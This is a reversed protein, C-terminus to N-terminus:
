AAGAGTIPCTATSSSSAPARRAPRANPAHLEHRIEAIRLKMKRTPSMTPFPNIRLQYDTPALEFRFYHVLMLLNIALHLEVWRFGLCKHTGLGFPAYSTSRDTRDHKTRHREIDFSFPDPFIDEMYHTAAQVLYIKSGAPLEYGEVVCNNMVTRIQMPIIPYLRQSEMFFRYTLDIGSKSLAEAEPDGEAFVRDAEEQIQRYLEPDRLLNYLAFSLANGMYLSVILPSIISFPLDTEPLFQPDAAHLSLINDTIDQPCGIRQAPTHAAQIREVLDGIRKKRRKMGPTKLMFKPLVRQVHVVLSREKFKILDKFDKQTDIGVSLQSFQANTFDKCSQVAPLVDGVKWTALHKRAHHYLEDLRGALAARSYTAQIAKRMRFHDAGDMSPLIRSAGYEQEFGSLYDKSRVYNRGVQQIWRNAGRGALFLMGGKMFPVNLRFVPGHKRAIDAFLAPINGTPFAPSFLLDRLPASPIPKTNLVRHFRSQTISKTTAEGISRGIADLKCVLDIRQAADDDLPFILHLVQCSNALAVLIADKPHPIEGGLLVKAIRAKVFDSPIQDPTSYADTHWTGRALSWFGGSHQILIGDNELSDLTSAMIAESRQSLYEIWYQTSRKRPEDGIAELISDLHPDETTTRDAIFLHDLDMDIRGSLALEALGASAVACNLNWGPVQHFYGSEENLLLLVLEHLLNLSSGRVELGHDLVVFHCRFLIVLVTL